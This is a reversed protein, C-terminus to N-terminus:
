VAPLRREFLFNQRTIATVFEPRTSPTDDTKFNFNMKLKSSQKVKLLGSAIDQGGAEQARVVGWPGHEPFYM